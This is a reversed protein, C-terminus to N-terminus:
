WKKKRLQKRRNEKAEDISVSPGAPQKEKTLGLMRQRVYPISREGATNYRELDNLDQELAISEVSRGNRNKSHGLRYLSEDKKKYKSAPLHSNKKVLYEAMIKKIKDDAM